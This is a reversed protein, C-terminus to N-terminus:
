EVLFYAEQTQSTVYRLTLPDSNLPVIFVLGGAIAAGGPIEGRPLFGEGTVAISPSHRTGYSDILEFSGLPGCYSDAPLRCYISLVPSV